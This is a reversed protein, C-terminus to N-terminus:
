DSNEAVKSNQELGNSIENTTKRSNIRSKKQTQTQVASDKTEDNVKSVISYSGNDFKVFVTKAKRHISPFQIEKEDFKVVTVADNNIIVACEKTM